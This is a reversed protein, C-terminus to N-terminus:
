GMQKAGAQLKLPYKEGVIQQLRRERANEELMGQQSGGCVEEEGLGAPQKGKWCCSSM